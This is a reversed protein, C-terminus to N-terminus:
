RRSILRRSTCSGDASAATGSTSIMGSSGHSPSPKGNVEEDHGRHAELHQEYLNNQGMVAPSDHMEVDSFMRTGPPRCLLDDFCEWPVFRRSVEEPVPVPDVACVEPCPDLAHAHLFDEYGRSRWPLIRKRFADDARDSSLAQVMHDHEILPVELSRQLVVEAVIVLPSRVERQVHVTRFRSRNLRGLGSLNHFERLHISQMMVVLPDRCLLLAKTEEASAQARPGLSRRCLVPAGRWPERPKARGAPSFRGATDKVM